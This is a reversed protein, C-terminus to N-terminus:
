DKISHVIEECARQGLPRTVATSSVFLPEPSPLPDGPDARRSAPGRHDVRHQSSSLLRDALALAFDVRRGALLISQGQAKLEAIKSRLTEIIILERALRV